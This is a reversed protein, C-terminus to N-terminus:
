TCINLHLSPTCLSWPESLSWVSFFSDFPFLFMSLPQLNDVGGCDRGTVQGCVNAKLIFLKEKKFNRRFLYDAASKLSCFVCRVRFIVFQNLLVFLVFCHMMVVVRIRRRRRSSWFLSATELRSYSFNLWVFYLWIFSFSEAATSRSPRNNLSLSRSKFGRQDSTKTVSNFFDSSCINNLVPRFAGM